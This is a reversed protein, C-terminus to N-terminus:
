RGGRRAAVVGGGVPVLHEGDHADVRLVSGGRAAGRHPGGPERGVGFADYPEACEWLSAVKDM